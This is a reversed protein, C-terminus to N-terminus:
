RPPPNAFKGPRAFRLNARSPLNSPASRLRWGTLYAFYSEDIWGQQSTIPACRKAGKMIQGLPSVIKEAQQKAVRTYIQSAITLCHSRTKSKLM